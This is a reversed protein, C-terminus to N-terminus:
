LLRNGCDYQISETNLQDIWPWIDNEFVTKVNTGPTDDILELLLFPSERQKGGVLAERILPHSTIKAELQAAYMKVEGTLVVLDDTRGQYLWHSTKTPDPHPKWLDSTRWIDMDPRAQFFNTFTDTEPTREVVLEYLESGAGYVADLGVPVFKVGNLPYLHIYSWNERRAAPILLPWTFGETSGVINVLTCPNSAIWDGCNSELHAGSFAIIKMSRLKERKEEDRVVDQLLSPHYMGGDLRGYQHVGEAIELTVPKDPPAMVGISDFYVPCILFGAVGLLQEANTGKQWHPCWLSSVHFIPLTIFLRQGELEGLMNSCGNIPPIRRNRDPCALMRHTYAVLNPLGTSGSTHVVLCPQDKATDWIADYPYIPWEDGEQADVPM